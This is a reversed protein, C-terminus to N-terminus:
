SEYIYIYIIYIYISYIYEINSMLDNFAAQNIWAPVFTAFDISTNTFVELFSFDSPPSKYVIAAWYDNTKCTAWTTMIVHEPAPLSELTVTTVRSRHQRHIIIAIGFSTLRTIVTFIKITKYGGIHTELPGIYKMTNQSSSNFMWQFSTRTSNTMRLGKRALNKWISCLYINVNQTM